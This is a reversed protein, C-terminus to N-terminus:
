KIQETLFFVISHMFNTGHLERFGNVPVRSTGTAFQLLRTKNESDLTGVFQWFWKIVDDSDKYNRYVTHKRWDDVDIDSIGGILLELEREDFISLLQKPIIEYLGAKFAELQLSIRQEVRFNCVLRAYEKKNEETVAVNRGDPILDHTTVKGFEEEDASFTLDLIDTIDNERNNNNKQNV